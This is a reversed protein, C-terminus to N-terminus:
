TPFFMKNVKAVMKLLLERIAYGTFQDASYYLNNMSGYSIHEQKKSTFRFSFFKLLATINKLAFIGEEYLLRILLAMQAVTLKLELKDPHELNSFEDQFTDQKIYEILWTELPANVPPLNPDYSMTIGVSVSKLQLLQKMLLTVQDEQRLLSKKRELDELYWQIFCNHNFNMYFLMETVCHTLNRGDEFAVTVGLNETFSFFYEVERYTGPSLSDTNIIGSLYDLVCAKLYVDIEVKQLTASLEDAVETMTKRISPLAADPIKGNENFFTIFYQVQFDKLNLLCALFLQPLANITYADDKFTQTNKEILGYVYDALEVIVQQQFWTYRKIVHDKTQSFLLETWVKKIRKCEAKYLSGQEEFFNAPLSNRKPIESSFGSAWEALLKLEDKLM